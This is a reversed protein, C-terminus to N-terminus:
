IHAVHPSNSMVINLQQQQYRVASDLMRCSLKTSWDCHQKRKMDEEIVVMFLSDVLIFVQKFLLYM